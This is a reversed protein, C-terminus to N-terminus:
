LIDYWNGPTKDISVAINMPPPDICNAMAAAMKRRIEGAAGFDWASLVSEGIKGFIWVGCLGGIGNFVGCLIAARKM